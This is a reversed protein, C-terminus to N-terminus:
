SLQNKTKFKSLLFEILLPTTRILNSHYYTSLIVENGQSKTRMPLISPVRDWQFCENVSLFEGGSCFLVVVLMKPKSVQIAMASLSMIGWYRTHVVFRAPFCDFKSFKMWWVNKRLTKFHAMGELASPHYKWWKVANVRSIKYVFGIQALSWGILIKSVLNFCQTVANCFPEPIRHIKNSQIRPM